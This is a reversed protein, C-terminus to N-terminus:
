RPRRETRRPEGDPGHAEHGGGSSGKRAGEAEIEDLLARLRSRARHMRIGVANTSCGLAVAAEGHSLGEWAVLTIVERDDPRLRVLAEALASSREPGVEPEDRVLRLRADLRESRRGSRQHNRIVNRAVGYLWPVEDAVPLEDRRRWAISFVEAVVDDATAADVRRRSYALLPRYARDFLEAFRVDPGRDDSVVPNM